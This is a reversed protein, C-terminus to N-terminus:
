NVRLFISTQRNPECILPSSLKWSIGLAPKKRANSRPWTNYELIVDAVSNKMKLVSPMLNYDVQGFTFEISKSPRTKILRLNNKIILTHKYIITITCYEKVPSNPSTSSTTMVSDLSVRRLSDRQLLWYEKILCTKYYQWFKFTVYKLSYIKVLPVNKDNVM